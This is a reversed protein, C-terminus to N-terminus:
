EGRQSLVANPASAGAKLFEEERPSTRRWATIKADANENPTRTATNERRPGCFIGAQRTATPSQPLWHCVDKCFVPISVTPSRTGGVTELLHNKAEVQKEKPCVSKRRRMLVNKSHAHIVSEEATM